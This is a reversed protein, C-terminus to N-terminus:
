INIFIVKDNDKKMRSLVESENSFNHHTIKPPPSSDFYHSKDGSFFDFGTFYIIEPKMEIAMAMAVLGSTPIYFNKKNYQFIKRFLNPPLRHTIRGITNKPSLLSIFTTHRVPYIDFGQFYNNTNKWDNDWSPVGFEQPITTWITQVGDQTLEEPTKQADHFYMNFAYITTKRGIKEDDILQYNNMRIVVDSKEIITRNKRELASPGNAIVTIIM